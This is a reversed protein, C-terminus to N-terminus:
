IHILKKNLEDIFRDYDEKYMWKYGGATKQKGSCAQSINTRGVISKESAEKVSNFISIIESNISLQVIKRTFKNGFRSVSSKSEKPDYNCWGLKAAQKLYRSVTNCNVNLIKGIETTTGYGESWLDSAKKILSSCAYEHCKLWNINTLDYLQNLECNLISLKLYELESEYAKIIIYKNINNLIANNYKLLDNEKEEIANRGNKGYREFGGIEHQKGNVEIIWNNDPLYFDYIKNDSWNFKRESEYNVCIQNLLEAVFKSPYSKGDSCKPCSLGSNYVSSIIKNRIINGCTPCKFDVRVDSNYTYKYGDEEDWLLKAFEQQNEAISGNKNIYNNRRIEAGRKNYCEICRDLGDGLKRRLLISNYQINPISKSCCDCIKTLKISSNEILDEVKVLIKTGKKVRLKGKKPKYRPIEYGLNEFHNINNGSLGVWVEKELIAM